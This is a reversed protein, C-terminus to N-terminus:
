DSFDNDSSEEDSEEDTSTGQLHGYRQDIAFALIDAVNTMDGQNKKKKVNADDLQVQFFDCTPNSHFKFFNFDM